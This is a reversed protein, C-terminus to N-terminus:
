PTVEEIKAGLESRGQPVVSLVVRPAQLYQRAVRQIDQATVARYRQLHEEFMDPRGLRVYYGNLADAKENVTEVRRLFSAETANKAQEVERATPGDTAIRKLETEIIRQLEPLPREPKATAVVWLDGAVRKGDQYSFVSSAVQRDYV